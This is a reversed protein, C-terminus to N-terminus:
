QAENRRLIGLRFYANLGNRDLLLRCIDWYPQYYLTICAISCLISAVFVKGAYDSYIALNGDFVIGSRLRGFFSLGFIIISSLTFRFYGGSEWFTSANM